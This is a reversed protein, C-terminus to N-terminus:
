FYQCQFIILQQKSSFGGTTVRTLELNLNERMWLKDGILKITYQTEGIDGLKKRSQIQPSFGTKILTM